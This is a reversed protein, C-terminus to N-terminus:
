SPISSRPNTDVRSIEEAMKKFYEEQQNEERKKYEWLAYTLQSSPIQLDRLSQESKKTVKEKHEELDTIEITRDEHKSIREEAQELQRKIREVTKKMEILTSETNYNRRPEM